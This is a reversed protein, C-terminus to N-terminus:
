RPVRAFLQDIPLTLDFVQPPHIIRRFGHLATRAWKIGTGIGVYTLARIIELRPDRGHVKIAQDILERNRAPSYLALMMRFHRRTVALAFPEVSEDRQNGGWLNQYVGLWELFSGDFKTTLNAGHTRYLVLKRDERVFFVNQRAGRIIWHWDDTGLPYSSDFIGIRDSANRTFIMATPLASIFYSFLAQPDTLPGCVPPLGPAFLTGFTEGSDFIRYGDACVVEAQPVRVFVDRMTELYEPAWYDDADLFGLHSGSAARIGYNRSDPLGTHPKKLYVLNRFKYPCEQIVQETNDTSGDDVILLEFDQFTQAALTRLAEKLFRAYNYTCVIVSNTLSMESREHKKEQSSM